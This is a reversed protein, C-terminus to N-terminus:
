RELCPIQFSIRLGQGPSSEAQIKGGLDGVVLNWVIHLGLGSGGAGRKTTFFPDWIHKLVSEEVGVGDDEYLLQAMATEARRVTFRVQGRRGDAFAHRLANMVLNSVVQFVFGPAALVSVEEDIRLSVEVGARRWEPQLSQLSSAVAEGLQFKERESVSQRVAVQKFSNILQAARGLNTALVDSLEVSHQILRELDSKRMQGTSLQGRLQEIQERWASAATVSVGLPTNVEHAIGAVLAGLSALKESEVLERQMSQLQAITRELDATREQVLLELRSNLETLAAQAAAKRESALARAAFDAMSAGFTQEETSWTRHPGVQEHCVVGWLEGEFRIPADLMSNIGLPTLYVTSFESTAPDTHADHAALVREERLYAFYSPFDKAYLTLGSSHKDGAREYLEECVIAELHSDYSWISVRAADLALAASQCIERFAAARAGSDIAESRTLELLTARM